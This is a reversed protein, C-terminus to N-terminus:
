RIATDHRRLRLFRSEQGRVLRVTDPEVGALTWGEITEDERVKRAPRGDVRLFAMRVSPTIVVADLEFEVTPDQAPETDFEHSEPPPEPATFPQRDMRFLPRRHIGAFAEFPEPPDSAPSTATGIREPGGGDRRVVDLPHPWLLEAAMITGALAALVLLIREARRLGNMAQRIM